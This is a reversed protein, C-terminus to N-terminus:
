VGVSKNGSGRTEQEMEFEFLFLFFPYYHDFSCAISSRKFKSIIAEKNIFDYLYSLAYHISTIIRYTWRTSVEKVGICENHCPLPINMTSIRLSSLEKDKFYELQDVVYKVVLISSMPAKNVIKV